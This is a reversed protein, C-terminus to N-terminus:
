FGKESLHKLIFFCLRARMPLSETILYEDASHINGGCVGLTDVTPLGAASLNNGDSCGGSFKWAIEQGLDKGIKAILEFLKLTKEDMKKPKRHFYGQLEVRYGEKPLDYKQVLKKLQAHVWAEDETNKIRIDLQATALDPVINVVNNMSINGINITVNKNDENLAHIDTILKALHVLANRGQNFDRGAHAAVGHVIISFHGSGKREGALTGQEDMAPEFIFGLKYDNEKVQELLFPASDFSGLEEDSDIFLDWGLQSAKETKEFAKLAELMVCLGGKMDAVGPGILIKDNKMYAKQFPHTESFVTDMHGGLLIRFSAEPRKRLFLIIKGNHHIVKTKDTENELPKLAELLIERMKNLGAKNSSGSNINAWQIVQAIMAEQNFTTM